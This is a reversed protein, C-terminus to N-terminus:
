YNDALNLNREAFKQAMVKCKTAKASHDLYDHLFALQKYTHSMHMCTEVTLNSDFTMEKVPIGILTAQVSHKIFNLENITIQIFEDNRYDLDGFSGNSEVMKLVENM